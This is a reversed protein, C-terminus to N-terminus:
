FAEEIKTVKFTLGLSEGAAHVLEYADREDEAQIFYFTTKPDTASAPRHQDIRRQQVTVHYRPSNSM